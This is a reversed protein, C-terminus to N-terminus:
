IFNCFTIRIYAQILLKILILPKLRRARCNILM